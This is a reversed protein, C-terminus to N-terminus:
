ALRWSSLPSTSKQNTKSVCLVTEQLSCFFLALPYKYKIPYSGMIRICEYPFIMHITPCCGNVCFPQASLHQLFFCGKSQMSFSGHANKAIRQADICFSPTVKQPPQEVGQTKKAQVGLTSNTFSFFRTFSTSTRLQLFGFSRLSLLTVNVVLPDMDYSTKLDNTM